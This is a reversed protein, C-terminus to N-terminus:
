FKSGNQHPEFQTLLLSKIFIFRSFNLNTLWEFNRDYFLTSLFFSSDTKTDAKKWKLQLTSLFHSQLRYGGNNPALFIM